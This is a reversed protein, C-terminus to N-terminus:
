VGLNIAGTKQSYWMSGPCWRRENSASRDLKDKIEKRGNKQVLLQVFSEDYM